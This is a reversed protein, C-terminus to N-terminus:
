WRNVHDESISNWIVHQEDVHNEEVHNDETVYWGDAHDEM